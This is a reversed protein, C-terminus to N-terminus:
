DGYNNGIADIATQVADKFKTDTVDYGECALALLFSEFGDIAANYCSRRNNDKLDSQIRGFYRGNEDSEGRYIIIGEIGLQILEKM